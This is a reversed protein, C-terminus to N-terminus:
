MVITGTDMPHSFSQSITGDLPGVSTACSAYHLQVIAQAEAVDHFNVFQNLLKFRIARCVACVCRHVTAKNVGFTEAVVRYEGCTALKYLTVERWKALSSLKWVRQNLLGTQLRCGHTIDVQSWVVSQM